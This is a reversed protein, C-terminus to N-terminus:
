TKIASLLMAEHVSNPPSILKVREVEGTWFVVAEVVGVDESWEGAPPASPLRSRLTVPATVNLDSSDFIKTPMLPVPVEAVLPAAVYADPQSPEILAPSAPSTGVRGLPARAVEVAGTSRAASDDFTVEEDALTEDEAAGPAGFRRVRDVLTSLDAEASERFQGGYEVAVVWADSAQDQFAAARGSVSGPDRQELYFM